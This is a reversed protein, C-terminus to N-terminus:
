DQYNQKVGATAHGLLKDRIESRVKLQLAFTEYTKCAIKYPPLGLPRCKKSITKWQFKNKTNLFILM